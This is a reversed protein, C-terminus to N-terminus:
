CITESFDLTVFVSDIKLMANLVDSVIYSLEM